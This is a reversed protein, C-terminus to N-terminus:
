ECTESLYRLTSRMSMITKGTPQGHELAVRSAEIDIQKGDASWHMSASYVNAPAGGDVAPCVATVEMSSEDAQSRQPECGAVGLLIGFVLLNASEADMCMLEEDRETPADLHTEETETRFAGRAFRKAVAMPDIPKVEAETQDAVPSAVVSMALVTAVITVSLTNVRFFTPM